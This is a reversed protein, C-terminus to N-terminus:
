ETKTPQKRNQRAYETWEESFDREAKVSLVIAKVLQCAAYVQMNNANFAQNEHEFVVELAANLKEVKWYEDIYRSLETLATQTQPDGVLVLVGAQEHNIMSKAFKGWAYIQETIGLIASHLRQIWKARTQLNPNNTKPLWMCIEQIIAQDLLEKM